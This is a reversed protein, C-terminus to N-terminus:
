AGLRRAAEEVAGANAAVLARFDASVVADDGIRRWYGSALAAATQWVAQQRPPAVAVQFPRDAIEGGATPRYQMPLMDYVPALLLPRRDDLFLSVNAFHQDSNAILRGFWWAM